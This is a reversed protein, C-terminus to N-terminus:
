SNGLPLASMWLHSALREAHRPSFRFHLNSDTANELSKRFEDFGWIRCRKLERFNETRDEKGDREM